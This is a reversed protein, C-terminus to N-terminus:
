ALVELLFLFGVSIGGGIISLALIAPVSYSFHFNWLVVAAYFVAVIALARRSIFPGVIIALAVVLVKSQWLGLSSVIGNSETIGHFAALKTSIADLAQLVVISAILFTNRKM